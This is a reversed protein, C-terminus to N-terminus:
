LICLANPQCHFLLSQSLGLRVDSSIAICKIDVLVVVKALENECSQIFLAIAIFIKHM